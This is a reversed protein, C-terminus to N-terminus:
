FVSFIHSNEAFEYSLTLGSHECVSWALALGLGTSGEKRGSPHYFRHFLRDGELSAAGPNIVSFGSDSVTVVIRSGPQSHVFANKVLNNVLVSVMQENINYTLVGSQRIECQVDKYAYMENYLSVSDYLLTGMDMLSKEPFQGNEIKSLLLLTKNLRILHSISRHLKSLELGIEDGLDPRDMLMEVRNLAAALPTQLEHSANGIFIKREEYEHEFRDVAEQVSMALQRFETIDTDAPVPTELKGPVYGDIWDLLARFPRFNYNIVLISILLLSVALVCFLVITWSLVHEILVDQEFVPLSVTLEYYKGEPGLFIQTRTRSNALDAVSGIHVDAEGYSVNPHESAYEPTVERLYYTNYMGNFREPLEQGTLKREIIGSSYDKLIMDTDAHIKREMTHYSLWGWLGLTLLLPLMFTLAIKYVLRM